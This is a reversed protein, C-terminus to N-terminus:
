AGSAKVTVSASDAVASVKIQVEDLGRVDMALFGTDGAAITTMDGNNGAGSGDDCGILLGGPTTYDISQSYALRYDQWGRGKIYILFADLAQTAVSIEVFLKELSWVPITAVTTNGTGAVIAPSAAQIAISAAEFSREISM